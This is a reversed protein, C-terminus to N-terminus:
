RFPRAPAAPIVGPAACFLQGPLQVVLGQIELAGLLSLVEPVPWGLRDALHDAHSPGASLCGLLAGAPGVPGPPGRRGMVPPVVEPYHELLDAPQLLPAAGDRILRNTGASRSSTIPGPVAMVEKGQELAASATILTGSRETAEVVVTVRALGAILRNRRPFGGQHPGLGPPFETVLLGGGERAVRDHLAQHRPSYRHGLGTGLVGVTTGPGAELAALHAATDLGRALGSVVVLGAAAALGAVMATVQLGYPTPDRSGVIAVAPRDLCDPRGVTFLVAPPDPITTLSAPFGADGPLLVRGGLAECAERARTGPSPDSAAAAVARAGVEGMGPVSRLSAFPAGLVGDLDGLAELLSARRVPGVGPALALALWADRAPGNLPGM